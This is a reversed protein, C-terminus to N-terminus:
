FDELDAYGPKAGECKIMSQLIPVKCCSAPSLATISFKGQIVTDLIDRLCIFYSKMLNNNGAAVESSALHPHEKCCKPLLVSEPQTRCYRSRLRGTDHCCRELFSKPLKMCSSSAAEEVEAEAAAQFNHGLTVLLVICGLTILAWRSGNSISSSM